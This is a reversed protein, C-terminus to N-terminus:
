SSRCGNRFYLISREVVNAVSWTAKTIIDRSWRLNTGLSCIKYRTDHVWALLKWTIGFNIVDKSRKHSISRRVERLTTRGSYQQSFKTAQAGASNKKGPLENGPMETIDSVSSLETWTEFITLFVNARMGNRYLVRNNLAVAVDHYTGGCPVRSVRGSSPLESNSERIGANQFTVRAGRECRVSRPGPM